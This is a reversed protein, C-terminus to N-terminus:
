VPTEGGTARGKDTTARVRHRVVALARRDMDQEALWEAVGEIAGVPNRKKRLLYGQIQAISYMNPPMAAAFESAYDELDEATCSLYAAHGNEEDEVPALRFFVKYVEAIQATTAFSYEITAFTLRGEESSVSDLVNLLGSLTVASNPLMMRPILYDREARLDDYNEDETDGRSPFACDIDLLMSLRAKAQEQLVMKRVNAFSRELFLAM